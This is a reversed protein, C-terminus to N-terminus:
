RLRIILWQYITSLLDSPGNTFPRFIYIYGESKCTYKILLCISKDLSCVKQILTGAKLSWFLRRSIHNALMKTYAILM